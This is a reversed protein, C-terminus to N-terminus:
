ENNIKSEIIKTFKYSIKHDKPFHSLVEQVSKDAMIIAEDRNEAIFNSFKKSNIFIDPAIEEKVDVDIIYEFM